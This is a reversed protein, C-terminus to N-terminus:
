IDRDADHGTLLSLNLQLSSGGDPRGGDIAVGPKLDDDDGTVLRSDLCGGVKLYIIVLAL